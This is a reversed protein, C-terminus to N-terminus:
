GARRNHRHRAGLARASTSSIPRTFSGLAPQEIALFDDLHMRMGEHRTNAAVVIDRSAALSSEVVTALGYLRGFPPVVGPECDPFTQFVQDSTALRLRDCAVGLAEALRALDIEATSPLVAVIFSEGTSVLVAKAVERGPVGASRARETSSSAPRYLLAEFWVGRSRLFEQVYM